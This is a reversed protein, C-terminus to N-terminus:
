EAKWVRWQSEIEPQGIYNIYYKYKDTLGPNQPVISFDFEHWDTDMTTVWQIGPAPDMMNYMPDAMDEVPPSNTLIPGLVPIYGKGQWAWRELTDDCREDQWFERSNLNDAELIRSCAGGVETHRLTYPGCVLTYGVEDFTVSPQGGCLPATVIPNQEYNIPESVDAPKAASCGALALATLTGIVAKKM